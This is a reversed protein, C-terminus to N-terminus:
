TVHQHKGERPSTQAASLAASQRCLLRLSVTWDEETMATLM